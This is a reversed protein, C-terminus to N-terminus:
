EAAAEEVVAATDTEAVEAEETMEEVQETAEEAPKEQKPACSYFATFCVLALAVLLLNLKKM